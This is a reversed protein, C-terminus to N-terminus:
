CVLKARMYFKHLPATQRDHWWKIRCKEVLTHTLALSRTSNYALTNALFSTKNTPSHWSIYFPFCFLCSCCYICVGLECVTQFRCVSTTKKKNNKKPDQNLNIFLKIRPKLTQAYLFAEFAWSSQMDTSKLKVKFTIWSKKVGPNPNESYVGSWACWLFREVLFDSSQVPASRM